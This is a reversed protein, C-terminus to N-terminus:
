RRRKAEKNIFERFASTMSTDNMYKKVILAVHGRWAKTRFNGLKMKDRFKAMAPIGKLLSYKKNPYCLSVFNYPNRYGTTCNCAVLDSIRDAILRFMPELLKGCPMNSRKPGIPRRPNSLESAKQDLEQQAREPDFELKYGLRWQGDIVYTGGGHAVCVVKRGPLNKKLIPLTKHYHMPCGISGGIRRTYALAEPLQEAKACSLYFGRYSHDVLSLPLQEAEAIAGKIGDATGFFAQGDHVSFQEKTVQEWTVSGDSDKRVAYLEETETDVNGMCVEPYPPPM